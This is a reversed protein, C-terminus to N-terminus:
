IAGEKKTLGLLLGQYFWFYYVASPVMFFNDALSVIFVVILLIFGSLFYKNRKDNTKKYYIYYRLCSVLLFGYFSIFGIFGNEFLFGLYENHPAYSLYYQTSKLGNGMALLTYDFRKIILAWKLLRWSFSRSELIHSIDIVEILRNGVGPTLIAIILVIIPWILHRPYKIVFYLSIGIILGLLAGRSFTLLLAIFDILLVIIMKKYKLSIIKEYNLIVILLITMMLYYALFNPHSTLGYGRTWFENGVDERLLVGKGIIVQIIALLAPFTSFMFWSKLLKRIQDYKLRYNITVIMMVGFFIQRLLFLFSDFIVPSRYLSITATILYVLYWIFSLHLSIKTGLIQIVFIIMLFATMLIDMSRFIPIGISIGELNIMSILGLQFLVYIFPINYKKIFVLIMTIVLIVISIFLTMEFIM